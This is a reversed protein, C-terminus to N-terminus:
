ATGEIGGKGAEVTKSIEEADLWGYALDYEVEWEESVQEAIAQRWEDENIPVDSALVSECVFLRISSPDRKSATTRLLQNIRHNDEERVQTFEWAKHPIGDVLHKYEEPLDTQRRYTYASRTDFDPSHTVFLHRLLPTPLAPDTPAPVKGFDLDIDTCLKGCVRSHGDEWDLLQCAQSCYVVNRDLKKSCMAGSILM